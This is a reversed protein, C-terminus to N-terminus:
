AQWGGTELTDRVKCGHCPCEDGSECPEPDPGYWLYPPLASHRNERRIFRALEAEDKFAQKNSEIIERSM